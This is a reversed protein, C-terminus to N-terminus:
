QAGPPRGWLDGPDLPARDARAQGRLRGCPPLARMGAFAARRPSPHSPQWRGQQRATTGPVNGAPPPRIGPEALLDHEELPIGAGARDLRQRVAAPM